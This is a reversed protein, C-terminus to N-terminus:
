DDDYDDDDAGLDFSMDGEDVQAEGRLIKMEQDRLRKQMKELKREREEMQERAAKDYADLESNLYQLNRFRELYVTYVDQLERQLAEYEDMYAPRVNQLTALRKQSRELEAKRKEIKAELNKEDKELNSLMRVVSESNEAVSQIAENVFAEVEQTDLNRGIALRRAERLEAESELMDYLAAGRSTIESALQRTRKVDFSKAGLDEAPAAPEESEDDAKLMGKYLVEAIKLMEKVAYGDAAYLRKANLKIRGKAAMTQAVAKIFTVRDAETEIDDAIDVKPDYRKVLWDLCDVVLEFNPQRFNELSVLRPYGLARMIETFNRLERFSM